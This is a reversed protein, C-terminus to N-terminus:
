PAAQAQTVCIRLYVSVYTRNKKILKPLGIETTILVSYAPNTNNYYCPINYM